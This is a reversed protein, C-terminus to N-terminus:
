VTRAAGVVPRRQWKLYPIGVVANVILYLLIIPGFQQDPFNASAITLAIAPHRCATSLALVVAHDPNSGGLAHGIALGALTVIVMALLTGNGVAAWMAPIAGSVLALVVVPLLVRGVLTVPKELRQAIAPLFARVAMGALLPALAGMVIVSAIARPAISVPRDFIRPLMSVVIPVAVISVLSLITMLALGYTTPGGAKSGRRPLLPPVPSIALAMLVVEVAPRFEFLAVLTWTVLPMIVFVALLSRVLLGPRRVLYLLDEPTAKLGFTFVTSLISLQLALMIIQKLDM